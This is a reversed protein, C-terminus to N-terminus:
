ARAVIAIGAGILAVGVWGRLSVREGLFLWAGAMMLIPALGEFVYLQSLQWTRLLGMWLFFWLAFLVTGGLFWAAAEYLSRGPYNTKSMAHKLMLNASVALVQCAICLIVALPTM